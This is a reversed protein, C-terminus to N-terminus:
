DLVGSQNGTVIGNGGDHSTEVIENYLHLDRGTRQLEPSEVVGGASNLGEREKM